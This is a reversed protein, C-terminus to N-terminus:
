VQAQGNVHELVSEAVLRLAYYDPVRSHYNVVLSVDVFAGSGSIQTALVGKEESTGILSLDFALCADHMHM